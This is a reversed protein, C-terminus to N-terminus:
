EIIDEIVDPNIAIGNAATAAFSDINVAEPLSTVIAVNNDSSNTPAGRETHGGFVIRNNTTSSLEDMEVKLRGSGPAYYTEYLTRLKNRYADLDALTTNYPSLIQTDNIAALKIQEVDGNWQNTILDLHTHYVLATKFWPALHPDDSYSGVISNVFFDNLQSTNNNFSCEEIASQYYYEFDEYVADYYQKILVNLIDATRDSMTVTFLLSNRKTNPVFVEADEASYTGDVDQFEFCVLRYNNKAERGVFAMPRTILYPYERVESTGGTPSQQLVAGYPALEYNGDIQKDAGMSSGAYESIDSYAHRSPQVLLTDYAVPVGAMHANEAFSTEVYGRSAIEPPYNDPNPVWDTEPPDIERIFLKEAKASKLSFFSHCFSRGFMHEIKNPNIIKSINSVTGWAKEYDFFIYGNLYFNYESFISEIDSSYMSFAMETYAEEIARYVSYKKQAQLYDQYNIVYRRYLDALGTNNIGYSAYDISSKGHTTYSTRVYAFPQLVIELLKSAAAFRANRYYSGDALRTEPNMAAIVSLNPNDVAFLFKYADLYKELSDPNTFDMLQEGEFIASAGPLVGEARTQYIGGDMNAATIFDGLKDSWANIAEEYVQSDDSVDKDTANVGYLGRGYGEYNEFNNFLQDGEADGERVIVNPDIQSARLMPLIRYAIPISADGLVDFARGELEVINTIATRTDTGDAFGQIAVEVGDEFDASLDRKFDTYFMELEFIDREIAADWSDTMAAVGKADDGAQLTGATDSARYYTWWARMENLLNTVAGLEDVSTEGDAVADVFEDLVYEALDYGFTETGDRLFYKLLQMICESGPEATVAGETYGSYTSAVSISGGFPSGESRDGIVAEAAGADLGIGANRSYQGSAVLVGVDLSKVGGFSTTRGRYNTAKYIAIIIEIIAQKQLLTYASYAKAWAADAEIQAADALIKYQKAEDVVMEITTEAGSPLAYAGLKAKRTYIFNNANEPVYNDPFSLVRTGVGEPTSTADIVVPSLNIMKKLQTGRKVANNANYLRVELKEHMRGVPTTTSTELFSKRFDNIKKLADIDHGHVAIIYALSDIKTQTDEDETAGVLDSFTGVIDDNSVQSNGYYNGEISQIVTGDYPQDALTKYIAIKSSRIQSGQSISEYSLDSIQGFLINAPGNKNSINNKEEASFGYPYKTSDLSTTFAVLTTNLGNKMAQVQSAMLVNDLNVTKIFKVIQNNSSDYHINSSWEGEEMLNLPEALFVNSGGPRLMFSDSTYHIAQEKLYTEWDDDEDYVRNDNAIAIDLINIENSKLRTFLQTGADGYRIPGYKALLEESSLMYPDYGNAGANFDSVAVISYQLSTALDEIYSNWLIDSESSDNKMFYFAIDVEIETDSVKIKEMYPVPFRDGFRNIINGNLNILM